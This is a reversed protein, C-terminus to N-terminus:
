YNTEKELYSIGIKATDTKTLINKFTCKKKFLVNGKKTTESPGVLGSIWVAKTHFKELNMHIEIKKKHEEIGQINFRTVTYKLPM